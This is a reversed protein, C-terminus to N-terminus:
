NPVAIGYFTGNTGWKTEFGASTDWRYNTGYFADVRMGWDWGCGETKTVRGFGYWFENMQYDNSRDTWTVPGTFRDAPSYPNWTFSQELWGTTSWQSDECCPKHLKWAEGLDSLKCGCPWNIGFCGCGCCGNCCNGCDSCSACAGGNTAYASDPIPGSLEAPQYTYDQARVAPCCDAVLAAMCLHRSFRNM